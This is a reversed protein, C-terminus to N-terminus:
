EKWNMVVRAGGGPKLNFWQSRTQGAFTATVRYRGPESVDVQGVPGCEAETSQDQLPNDVRTRVGSLYSGEPTAFLITLAHKGVEARMAESEDLGIGGCNLRLAEAAAASALVGALLCAGACVALRLGKKMM